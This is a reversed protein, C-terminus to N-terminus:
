VPPERPPAVTVGLDERASPAAAIAVRQQDPSTCRNATGYRLAASNFSIRPAPRHSCIKVTM